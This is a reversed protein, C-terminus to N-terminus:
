STEAPSTYEAALAEAAQAPSVAPAERGEVAAPGAMAAMEVTSPASDLLGVALAATAEGAGRAALEEARALAGPAATRL